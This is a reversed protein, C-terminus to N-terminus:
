AVAARSGITTSVDTWSEDTLAESDACRVVPCGFARRVLSVDAPSMVPHLVTEAGHSEVWINGVRILSPVEMIVRAFREGCGDVGETGIDGACALMEDFGFYMEVPWGAALLRQDAMVPGNAGDIQVAEGPDPVIDIQRIAQFGDDKTEVLDGPKLWDLPAMGDPTNLVCDLSVGGAFLDDM